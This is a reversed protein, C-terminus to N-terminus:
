QGKHFGEYKDTVIDILKRAEFKNYAHECAQRIYVPDAVNIAEFENSVGQTIMRYTRNYWKKNVRYIKAIWYRNGMYGKCLRIEYQHNKPLVPADVPPGILENKM